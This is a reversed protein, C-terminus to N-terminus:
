GGEMVGEVFSIKDDDVRWMRITFWRCIGDGINFVSWIFTRGVM